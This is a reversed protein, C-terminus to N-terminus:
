DDELLSELNNRVLRKMEDRGFEEGDNHGRQYAEEERDEQAKESLQIMYQILLCLNYVPSQAEIYFLDNNHMEDRIVQDITRETVKNM